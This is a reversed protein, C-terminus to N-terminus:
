ALSEWRKTRGRRERHGPRQAKWSSAVHPAEGITAELVRGKRMPAGKAISPGSLFASRAPTEPRSCRLESRFDRKGDQAFGPSARLTEPGRGRSHGCESCRWRVPLM